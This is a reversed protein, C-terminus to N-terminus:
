NFVIEYRFGGADRGVPTMFLDLEGHRPHQLTVIGQGLPTDLAGRLFLSFGPIPRATPYPSRWVKDVVLTIDQTEARAPLSQGLLAEFDEVPLLHLEVAM